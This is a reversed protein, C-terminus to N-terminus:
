FRTNEYIIRKYRLFVPKKRNKKGTEQFFADIKFRQSYIIYLYNELFTMGVDNDAMCFAPVKDYWHM